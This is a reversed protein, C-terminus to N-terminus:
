GSKKFLAELAARADSVGLRASGHKGTYPRFYDCFNQKEKEVVREAATERCSNNFAPDYFECNRCAHLPSDCGPGRDRM